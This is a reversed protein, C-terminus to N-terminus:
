TCNNLKMCNMFEVIIANRLNMKEVGPGVTFKLEQALQIHSINQTLPM